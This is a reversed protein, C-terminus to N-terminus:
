LVIYKSIPDQVNLKKREVLYKIKGAVQRMYKCLLTYVATESMRKNSSVLSFHPMLLANLNRMALVSATNPRFIERM